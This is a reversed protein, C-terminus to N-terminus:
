DNLGNKEEKENASLGFHDWWVQVRGMDWDWQGTKMWCGVMLIETMGCGAEMEVRM